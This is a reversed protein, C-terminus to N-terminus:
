RTTLRGKKQNDIYKKIVDLPAGGCSIIRYAPTLFANKWLRSTVEPFCRSRVARSSAGKLRGAITALSLSPPYSFLVHIHDGEGDGDCAIIESGLDDATRLFANKVTHEVRSSPVRRRYKVTFVLHVFLTSKSGPSPSSM